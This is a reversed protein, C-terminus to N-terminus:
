TCQNATASSCKLPVEGAIVLPDQTQGLIIAPMLEEAMSMEIEEKINLPAGAM